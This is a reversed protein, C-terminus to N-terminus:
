DYYVDPFGRRWKDHRRQERRARIILLQRVYKPDDLGKWGREQAQEVVKHAQDDMDWDEVGEDMAIGSARSMNKKDDPTMDGANRPIRQIPPTGGQPRAARAAAQAGRAPDYNRRGPPADRKQGEPSDPDIDGGQKPQTKTKDEFLAFFKARAKMPDVGHKKAQAEVTDLAHLGSMERTDVLRKLQTLVETFQKSGNPHTTGSPERYVGRDPGGSVGGPTEGGSEYYRGGREGQQEREGAPPKEGEGLYKRDNMLIDAVLYAAANMANRVTHGMGTVSSQPASARRLAKDYMQAAMDKRGYKMADGAEALFFAVANATADGNATRRLKTAAQRFEDPSSGQPDLRQLITSVDDVVTQKPQEDAWQRGAQQRSKGGEVDEPHMRVKGQEVTYNRGTPQEEWDPYPQKPPAGEFDDSEGGGEL